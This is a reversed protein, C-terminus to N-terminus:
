RMCRNVEFLAANLSDLANRANEQSVLPDGGGNLTSNFLGLFIPDIFTKLFARTRKTANIVKKEGFVDIEEKLYQYDADYIIQFTRGSVNNAMFEALYAMDILTRDLQRAKARVLFRDRSDFGGACNGDNESGIILNRDWSNKYCVMASSIANNLADLALRSNAQSELNTLGGVLTNSIQLFDSNSVKSVFLNGRQSLFRRDIQSFTNLDSKLEQYRDNLSQIESLTLDSRNATVEAINAMDTLFREIRPLIQLIRGRESRSYGSGCIQAQANVALALFVLLTVKIKKM